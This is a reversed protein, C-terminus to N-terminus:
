SLFLLQALLLQKKMGEREPCLQNGVEATVGVSAKVEGM